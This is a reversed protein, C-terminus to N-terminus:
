HKKIFLLYLRRERRNAIRTIKKRNRRGAKRKPRDVWDIADGFIRKSKSHAGYIKAGTKKM